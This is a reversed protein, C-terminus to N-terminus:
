SVRRKGQAQLMDKISRRWFAMCASAMAVFSLLLLGMIIRRDAPLVTQPPTVLFATETPIRGADPAPATIPVATVENTVRHPAAQPPAAHAPIMLGLFMFLCALLAAATMRAQWLPLRFRLTGEEEDGLFM